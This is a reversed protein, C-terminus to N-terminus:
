HRKIANILTGPINELSVMTEAAKMQWAIKPMGWVVSTKEDQAFTKGGANKIQLLGAAGDKGMGTMLVAAANKGVAEAVSQFLVDVSPRHSSVPDGDVLKVRYQGGYRQIKMHKLGGPAVLIHGTLVRDRNAAEKVKMQSMRDLREALSATYEAPMHQVIVIGPSAPPFVPLIRALAETGGTSAGIAIVRDTSEDLPQISDASIPVTAKPRIRSVNVTAAIKIKRILDTIMLPLGDVLGAHPKPVIDVAGAELADMSLRKNKETLSSVIITPTPIIKMFRKMFTIGDMRPMEVDLTIVDPKETVLIDRAQYPDAATGIVEIDPDKSLGECLIERVLASDDVILIRIKNKM